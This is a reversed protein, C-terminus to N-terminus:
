FTMGVSVMGGYTYQPQYISVLSGNSINGGSVSTLTPAGAAYQYNTYFMGVGLQLEEYVNFKAGLTTTFQQNNQPMIGAVPGSQDWNYTYAQDLYVDINKNIAYQLRAGAGGTWFFDNTVNYYNNSVIASMALNTNRGAILYPTLMFNQNAVSYQFSYGAKGNFGGLFPNQNAPMGTSQGMGIGTAQSGLSNTNTLMYANINAWVGNNFQREVDLTMDQNTLLSQNGAGNSLTMQNLSFGLSIQNDFNQFVSYDQIAFASASTLILSTLLIKKM